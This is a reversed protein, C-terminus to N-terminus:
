PLNDLKNFIKKLAAKGGATQRKLANKEYVSLIRYHAELEQFQASNVWVEESGEALTRVEDLEKLVIAIREKNFNPLDEANPTKFLVDTRLKELGEIAKSNHEIFYLFAIHSLEPFFNEQHREIYEAAASGSWESVNGEAFIFLENIKRDVAEKLSTEIEAKPPRLDIAGPSELKAALAYIQTRLIQDQDWLAPIWLQLNEDISDLTMKLFDPMESNLIHARDKYDEGPPM